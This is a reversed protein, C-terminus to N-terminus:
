VRSPISQAVQLSQIPGRLHTTANRACPALRLLTVRRSSDTSHNELTAISLLVVGVSEGSEHFSDVSFFTPLQHELCRDVGVSHSTEIITTGPDVEFVEAVIVVCISGQIAPSVLIRVGPNVNLQDSNVVDVVVVGLVM